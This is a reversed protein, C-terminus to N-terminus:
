VHQRLLQHLHMKENLLRQNQDQLTAHVQKLHNNEAALRACEQELYHM